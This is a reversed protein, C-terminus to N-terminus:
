YINPRRLRYIQRLRQRKLIWSLCDFKVLCVLVVQHLKKPPFIHWEPATTGCDNAQFLGRIVLLRLGGHVLREGPHFHSIYLGKRADLEDLARGLRASDSASLKFPFLSTVCRWKQAVHIALSYWGSSFSLLSLQLQLPCRRRRCVSQPSALYLCVGPPSPPLSIRPSLHSPPLRLRPVPPSLSAPAASVSLQRRIQAQREGGVEGQARCRPRWFKQFYTKTLCTPKPALRSRNGWTAPEIGSRHRQTHLRRTTGAAKTHTRPGGEM